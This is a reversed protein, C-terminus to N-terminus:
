VEVKRDILWASLAFLGIAIFSYYVFMGIPLERAKEVIVHKNNVVVNKVFTIDFYGWKTLKEYLVTKQFSNGLWAILFSIIVVALFSFKAMFRKLTQFITWYFVLWIALYIAFLAISIGSLLGSKLILMTEWTEEAIYVGRLNLLGIYAFMGSISFSFLFGVMGTLLKAALLNFASHPTYLWLHLHKAEAQLSVYMFVTLYFSHLAVLVISPIFMILPDNYKLSFIYAILHVAIVLAISVLIGTKSIHFEKRLLGKWKNM